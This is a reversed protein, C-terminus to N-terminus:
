DCFVKWKIASHHADGCFSTTYQHLITDFDHRTENSSLSMKLITMLLCFFSLVWSASTEENIVCRPVSFIDNCHSQWLHLRCNYCLSTTWKTSQDQLSSTINASMTSWSELVVKHANLDAYRTNTHLVYTHWMFFLREKQIHVDTSQEKGKEDDICGTNDFTLKGLM